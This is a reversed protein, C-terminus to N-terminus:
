FIFLDLYDLELGLDYHLIDEAEDLSGNYFAHQMDAAAAKVISMAENYSINDRKAIMEGLEELTRPMLFYGGM